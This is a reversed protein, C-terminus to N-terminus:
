RPAAHKMPRKSRIFISSALRDCPPRLCICIPVELLLLIFVQLPASASDSLGFLELIPVIILAKILFYEHTVMIFLSNSSYFRLAPAIVPIRHILEGLGLIGIIGTFALLLSLPPFGSRLMHYDLTGFRECLVVNCLLVATSAYPHTKVLTLTLSRSAHGVLVFPTMTLIEVLANLPCYLLPISILSSASSLYNGLTSFVLYMCLAIGIICQYNSCISTILRTLVKAMALTILFWLVNIGLLVITQYIDQILDFVTMSHLYLVRCFLDFLIFCVSYFCYQSFLKRESRLASLLTTRLNTSSQNNKMVSGSIFFFLPIHFSYILARWYTDMPLAHGIVVLIIGIGRAMDYCPIRNHARKGTAAISAM